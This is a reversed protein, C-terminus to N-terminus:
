SQLVSVKFFRGIAGVEIVDGVQTGTAHCEMYKVRHLPVGQALYAREYMKMMGYQQHMWWKISSEKMLGFFSSLM